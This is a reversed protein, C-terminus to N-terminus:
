DLKERSPTQVKKILIDTRVKQVEIFLELFEKIRRKREELKSRKYVESTKDDAQNEQEQFLSELKNASM